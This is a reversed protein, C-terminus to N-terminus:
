KVGGRQKYNHKAQCSGCCFRLGHSKSRIRYFEKECWGCKLLVKGREENTYEYKLPLDIGMRKCRHYYSHHKRSAFLHLNEERNDDKVENIHHVEEFDNLLRGIAREMVLRHELIYPDNQNVNPHDPSYIRIYGNSKVRGGKWWRANEGTPQDHPKRGKKSESIKRKTEESHKRGYMPNKDGKVNM